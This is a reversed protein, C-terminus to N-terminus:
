DIHKEYVITCTSRIVTVITRGLSEYNKAILYDKGDIISKGLEEYKEEILQSNGGNIAKDLEVWSSAIRQTSDRMLIKDEEEYDKTVLQNKSKAIAKGLEGYKEEILQQKSEAIAKGLEEYKEEILQNEEQIEHIYKLHVDITRGFNFILELKDVEDRLYSIENMYEQKIDQLCNALLIFTKASLLINWWYPKAVLSDRENNLEDEFSERFGHVLDKQKKYSQNIEELNDNEILQIGFAREHLHNLIRWSRSIISREFTQKIAQHKEQEIKRQNDREEQLRKKNFSSLAWGSVFGGVATAIAISLLDSWNSAILQVVYYPIIFIM